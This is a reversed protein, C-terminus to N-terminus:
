LFSSPFLTPSSFLPTLVIKMGWVGVQGGVRHFGNTFQAFVVKQMTEETVGHSSLM